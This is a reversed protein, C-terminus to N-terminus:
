LSVSIILMIYCSLLKLPYLGQPMPIATVLGAVALFSTVAVTFTKMINLTSSNRLTITFLSRLHPPINSQPTIYSSPSRTSKKYRFFFSRM